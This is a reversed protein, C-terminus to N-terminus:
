LIEEEFLKMVNQQKNWIEYFERSFHIKIKPLSGHSMWTKKNNNKIEKTWSPIQIENKLLNFQNILKPYIAQLINKWIINTDPHTLVSKVWWLYVTQNQTNFNLKSNRIKTRGSSASLVNKEGCIGFIYIKKKKQFYSQSQLIKFVLFIFFV